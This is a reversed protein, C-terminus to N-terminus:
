PKCFGVSLPGDLVELKQWSVSQKPNCPVACVFLWLQSQNKTNTQKKTKPSLKQATTFYNCQNRTILCVLPACGPHISLGWTYGVETSPKSTTVTQTQEANWLLLNQRTLAKKNNNQPLLVRTESVDSHLSCGTRLLSVQCCSEQSSRMLFSKLEKRCQVQQIQLMPFPCLYKNPKVVALSFDKSLWPLKCVLGTVWVLCVPISPQQSKERLLSSFNHFVGSNVWWSNM